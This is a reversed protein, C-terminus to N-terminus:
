WCIGNSKTRLEVGIAPVMFSALTMSTFRSKGGLVQGVKDGHRFRLRALDIEGGAADAGRRVHGALQEIMVPM